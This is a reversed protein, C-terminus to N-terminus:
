WWGFGAGALYTWVAAIAIVVVVGITRAVPDAWTKKWRFATLRNEAIARDIEAFGDWDRPVPKRTAHLEYDPM